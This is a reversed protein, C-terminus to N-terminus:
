VLADERTAILIMQDEADIGPPVFPDTQATQVLAVAGGAILFRLSDIIEAILHEPGNWKPAVRDVVDPISTSGTTSRRLVEYIATSVRVTGGAPATLDVAKSTHATVAVGTRSVISVDAFLERFQETSCHAPLERLTRADIMSQVVRESGLEDVAWARSCPTVRSLPSAVVDPTIPELYVM